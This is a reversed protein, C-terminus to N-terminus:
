AHKSVAARAAEEAHPGDTVILIACVSRMSLLAGLARTEFCATWGHAAQKIM